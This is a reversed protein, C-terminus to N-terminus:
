PRAATVTLPWVVAELFPGHFLLPLPVLLWGLTWARGSWGLRRELVVLGGHLLFYLSPGGYGGRAPVSIALEHAIASFAFAALVGTTRGFRASVPRSVALAIMESFALNWRRGWFESLSTALLPARFLPAADVGVARWAGAVVNMLGFHLLLSLGALLFPAAAVRSGTEVWVLRGAALLLAGLGVRALGKGVLAAAGPLAATEAGLRAFLAPRMGPWGVVFALTALAGLPAGGGRRHEVLVVVKMGLLLAACLALMRETAPAAETITAAGVVLSVVLLWALLRAM